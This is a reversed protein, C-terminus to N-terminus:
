QRASIDRVIRSVQIFFPHVPTNICPDLIVVPHIQLGLPEYLVLITARLVECFPKMAVPPKTSTKMLKLACALDQRPIAWM